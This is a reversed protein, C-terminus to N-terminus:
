DDYTPLPVDFTVESAERGDGLDADDDYEVGSFVDHDNLLVRLAPGDDSGDPEGNTDIFVIVAGDKGASRTVTITLNGNM